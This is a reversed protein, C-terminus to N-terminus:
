RGSRLNWDLGLRRFEAQEVRDQKRTKTKEILMGIPLAIIAFLGLTKAINFARSRDGEPSAAIWTPSAGVVAIGAREKYDRPIAGPKWQYGGRRAADYAAYGLDYPQPPAIAEAVPVSGYNKDFVALYYYITPSPAIEEYWEILSGPRPFISVSWWAPDKTGSTPRYLAVGVLNGTARQAIATATERYTM